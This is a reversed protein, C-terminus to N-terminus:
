AATVGALGAAGSGPAGDTKAPAAAFSKMSFINCAFEGGGEVSGYRNAGVQGGAGGGTAASGGGGSGTASGISGTRASRNAGGGCGCDCGIAGIAGSGMAGSGTGCGKERVGSAIM